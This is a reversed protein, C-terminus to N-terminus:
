RWIATIIWSGISLSVIEESTLAHQRGKPPLPINPAKAAGGKFRVHLIIEQEKIMTVDELLLRIM